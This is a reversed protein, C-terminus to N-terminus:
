KTLVYAGRKKPVRKWRKKQLGKYFLDHLRKKAIPLKQAPVKGYLIPIVKDATMPEGPHERLISELVDGMGQNRYAAKVKLEEGRSSSSSPRAPKSKRPSRNKTTKKGTGRKKESPAELIYSLAVKHVKSWLGRKVGRAMVDKMRIREAKLDAPSLEGLLRDIVDDIHLIKGLNDQFIKAVADIKSMGVYAPLPTLAM